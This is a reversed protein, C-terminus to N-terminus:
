HQEAKSRFYDIFVRALLDHGAPTLHDYFIEEGRELGLFFENSPDVLDVSNRQCVADLWVAWSDQDAYPKGIEAQRPINIVVFSRGAARVENIWHQLVWEGVKSAYDLLTDPWVSPPSTTALAAGEAGTTAMQRDEETVAIKIGRRKLLKLRGTITSMLVSKAKVYQFARHWKSKKHSSRERFSEDIAFTDGYLYAMPMGVGRNLEVIHDGPDNEVFVYVIWDLDLMEMWRTCEIYSHLTGYGSIGIAICEYRPRPLEDNLRQEILRFFTQEMPVQRAEVYSDGFFGIRVVDPPKLQDHEIDLYGWSNVRRRVYEHRASRYFSNAHPYLGGGTIENYRYPHHSIGPIPAVRLIIEAVIAALIVSMGITTATFVALRLKSPGRIGSDTIKAM